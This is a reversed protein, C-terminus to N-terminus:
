VNFMASRGYEFWDFAAPAARETIDYSYLGVHAGTFGFTPIPDHREVFEDSLVLADQAAGVPWWVSDDSLAWRFRLFRGDCDVGLRVQTVDPVPIHAPAEYRFSPMWRAYLAVCPGLREDFQRHLLYWHRTDYYCILGAWQQMQTPRFELSTVASFTHHRVRQAILSPQVFSDPPSPTGHLLLWGRRTHLDALKGIPQRLSTWLQGLELENFDDRAPPDPV